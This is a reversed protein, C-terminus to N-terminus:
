TSLIKKDDTYKLGSYQQTASTNALHVHYGAKQLGDALWYWNYTSEIVIGEIFAFATSM